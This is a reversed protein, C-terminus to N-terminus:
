TNLGPKILGKCFIGGAGHLYSQVIYALYHSSHWIVFCSFFGVREPGKLELLALYNKFLVKEYEENQKRLADWDVFGQPTLLVKSEEKPPEEQKTYGLLEEIM